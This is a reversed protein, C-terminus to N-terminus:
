PRQKKPKSKRVVDAAVQSELWEIRARLKAAETAWALEAAEHKRQFDDIMERAYGLAQELQTVRAPSEEPRGDM